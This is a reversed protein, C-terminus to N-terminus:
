IYYRERLYRAPVKGRVTLYGKNELEANLSNISKYANSQSTSFLSKVDDVDYFLAASRDENNLTDQLGYRSLLFRTSVCGRITLYGKNSLETNLAKIVKYAQPVSVNLIESVGQANLYQRNLIGENVVTNDKM